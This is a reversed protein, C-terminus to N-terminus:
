IVGPMDLEDVNLDPIKDKARVEGGWGCQEERQSTGLVPFLEAVQGPVPQLLLGFLQNGVSSGM